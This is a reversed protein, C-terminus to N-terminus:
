PRSGVVPGRAPRSVTEPAPEWARRESSISHTLHAGEAERFGADGGAQLAALAEPEGDVAGLELDVAGVRLATEGRAVADALYGALEVADALEDVAAAVEALGQAVGLGGQRRRAVDREVLGGEPVAADEDAGVDQLPAVPAVAHDLDLRGRTELLIVQLVHGDLRPDGLAGAHREVHEAHGDDVGVEDVGAAAVVAAQQALDRDGVLRARQHRVDGPPHAAEVLQERPGSGAMLVPGWHRRGNSHGNMGNQSSCSPM